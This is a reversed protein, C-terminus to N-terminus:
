IQSEFLLQKVTKLRDSHDMHGFMTLQVSNEDLNRAGRLFNGNLGAETARLPGRAMVRRM